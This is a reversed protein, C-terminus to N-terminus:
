LAPLPVSAPFVFATTKYAQFDYPVAQVEKCLKRAQGLSLVGDCRFRRTLRLPERCGAAPSFDDILSVCRMGAKIGFARAEYSASAIESTSADDGAGRAVAASGPQGAPAGTSHCVVVPRGVLEPRRKLSVAVFFADFDCHLIVPSRNSNAGGSPPRAGGVVHSSRALRHSALSLDAGTARGKGKGDDAMAPQSSGPALTASGGSSVDEQAKAVILKLEAKWTSLHHLRSPLVVILRCIM